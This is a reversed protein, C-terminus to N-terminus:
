KRFKGMSIYIMKMFSKFFPTDSKHVYNINLKTAMIRHYILPFFNKKFVRKKYRHFCKKEMHFVDASGM